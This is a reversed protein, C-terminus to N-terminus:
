LNSFTYYSRVMFTNEFAMLVDYVYFKNNIFIQQWHFEVRIYLIDSIFIFCLYVSRM